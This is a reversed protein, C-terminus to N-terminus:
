SVRQTVADGAGANWLQAFSECTPAQIRGIGMTNGIQPRGSVVQVGTVASFRRKLMAVQALEGRAASGLIGIALRGPQSMLLRQIGFDLGGESHLQATALFDLLDEVPRAAGLDWSHCSGDSLVLEGVFGQDVVFRAISAAISIREEAMQDDTVGERCDLLLSVGPLNADVLEKVVLHGLRASSPWHIRRRDDGPVYERLMSFSLSGNPEANDVVGDLARMVAPPPLRLRDTRPHVILSVPEIRAAGKAALGIPDSRELTLPGVTIVGRRATAVPYRTEHTDGAAVRPIDFEV